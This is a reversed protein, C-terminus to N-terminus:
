SIHLIKIDVVCVHFTRLVCSLLEITTFTEGWVYELASFPRCVPPPFNYKRHYWIDTLWEYRGVSTLSLSDKECVIKAFASQAFTYLLLPHQRIQGLKLIFEVNEEGDWSFHQWNSSKMEEERDSRYFLLPTLSLMLFSPVLLSSANSFEWNWCLPLFTNKANNWCLMEYMLSMVEHRTSSPFKEKELWSNLPSVDVFEDDHTRRPSTIHSLHSLSHHFKRSLSPSLALFVHFTWWFTCM